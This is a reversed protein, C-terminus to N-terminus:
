DEKPKEYGKKSVYKLGISIGANAYCPDFTATAFAQLSLLLREEIVLDYGVFAQAGFLRLEPRFERDTLSYGKLFTQRRQLPYGVNGGAGAVFGKLHFAASVPLTVFLLNERYPVLAAPPASPDLFRASASGTYGRDMFQLGTRLYWHKGVIRQEFGAGAGFTLRAEDLSTQQSNGRQPIRTAVGPMLSLGYSRNYTQACLPFCALVVPLATLIIRLM